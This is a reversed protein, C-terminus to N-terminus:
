VSTPPTVTTTPAPSSISGASPQEAGIVAGGAGTSTSRSGINKTSAGPPGMVRGRETLEREASWLRELREELGGGLGERGWEGTTSLGVSGLSDVDVKDTPNSVNLSGIGGGLPLNGSSTTPTMGLLGSAATETDVVVLHTPPEYHGPNLVAGLSQSAIPASTLLDTYSIFSLRNSARMNPSPMSPNPALGPGTPPPLSPRKHPSSTIVSTADRATSRPSGGTVSPSTDSVNLNNNTTVIAAVSTAAPPSASRAPSPARSSSMPSAFGSQFGSISVANGSVSASASVLGSMGMGQLLLSMTPPSPSGASTGSAVSGISGIGGGGSLQNFQSSLPSPQSTPSQVASGSLSQALPHVPQVPVPSLVTINAGAEDVSTLASVASDLVSPVTLELAETTKSRPIRHPNANASHSAGISSSRLPHTSTAATAPPNQLPVSLSPLGLPEIDREFIASSSSHISTPSSPISSPSRTGLRSSGGGGPSLSLAAPLGPSLGGFKEMTPTTISSTPPPSKDPNTTQRSPKSTAQKPVILTASPPPSAGAPIANSAQSSTVPPSPPSSSLSSM